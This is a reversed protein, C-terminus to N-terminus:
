EDDDHAREPRKDEDKDQGKHQQQQSKWECTKCRNAKDRDLSPFVLDFVDGYWGVAHGEIGEKINEPLELWDSMNDAPFIVTRCGARRAAVTKERLGGIRLVKGTLTLEGTMAVTPAVAADLALSLLSTAMTIGASPGDKPVAGDPVHLHLAARAFFHNDPFRAALFAKAFSYAITTSEKMVAKLNGTVELQPRARPRLPAQLISEIYMAAGGMQTWALGMSVGAPSVDYLRDSTFVPPGIYDTLNDRGIEVQVSDPVRM